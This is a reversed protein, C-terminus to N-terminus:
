TRRRTTTRPLRAARTIPKPKPNAEQEAKEVMAVIEAWGIVEIEAAVHRKIRPHKEGTWWIGDFLERRLNNAKILRALLLRREEDTEPVPPRKIPPM